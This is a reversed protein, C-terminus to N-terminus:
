IILFFNSYEINEVIKIRLKRIENKQFDNIKWGSIMINYTRNSSRTGYANTLILNEKKENKIMKKNKELSKIEKLNESIVKKQISKKPSYYVGKKSDNIAKKSSSDIKKNIKNIEKEGAIEKNKDYDIEKDKKEKNKKEEIKKIKM